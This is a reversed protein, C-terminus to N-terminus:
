PQKSRLGEKNKASTVVIFYRIILRYILNGCISGLFKTSNSEDGKIYIFKAEDHLIHVFENIMCWPTYPTDHVCYVGCQNKSIQENPVRKKLM